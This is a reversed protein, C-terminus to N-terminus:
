AVLLLALSGTGAVLRVHNWRTWRVRYDAWAVRGADLADNLPVNVVGTVGLVGVLYLGAALVDRNIARM